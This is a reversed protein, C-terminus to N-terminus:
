EMARSLKKRLELNISSAKTLILPFYDQSPDNDLYIKNWHRTMNLIYYKIRHKKM